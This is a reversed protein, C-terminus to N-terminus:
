PNAESGVYLWLVFSLLVSLMVYIFKSNLIKKGM